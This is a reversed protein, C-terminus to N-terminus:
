METLVQLPVFDEARRPRKKQIQLAYSVLIIRFFFLIISYNFTVKSDVNRRLKGSILAIYSTMRIPKLKQDVNNSNCILWTLIFWRKRFEM